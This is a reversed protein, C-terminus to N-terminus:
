RKYKKLIRTLKYCSPCITSSGLSHLKNDTFEHPKTYVESKWKVGICTQTYTLAKGEGDIYPKPRRFEDIKEVKDSWMGNFEVPVFKDLSIVRKM